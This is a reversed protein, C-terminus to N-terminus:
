PNNRPTEETNLVVPDPTIKVNLEVVEPPFSDCLLFQTEKKVLELPAANIAFLTVFLIFALILIRSM